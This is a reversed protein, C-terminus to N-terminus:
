RRIHLSFLIKGKNLFYAFNVSSQSSHTTRRRGKRDRQRREKPRFWAHARNYFSTARHRNDGRCNLLRPESFTRINFTHTCIYTHTHVHVSAAPISTTWYPPLFSSVLGASGTTASEIGRGGPFEIEELQCQKRLQFVTFPCDSNFVIWKESYGDTRSSVVLFYCHWKEYRASSEGYWISVFFNELLIGERRWNSTACYNTCGLPSLLLLFLLM